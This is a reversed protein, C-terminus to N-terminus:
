KGTKAPESKIVETKVIVNRNELFKRGVPTKALQLVLKLVFDPQYEVLEDANDLVEQILGMKKQTDM